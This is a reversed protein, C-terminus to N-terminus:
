FVIEEGDVPISLRDDSIGAERAARRLESRTITCHDFAEMHIAVVQSSPARRCVTVTQDADMIILEGRNWVAGGSHTLIVDPRWKTITEAVGEYWVTDGAWYLTPEKPARLVYGCTTGMDGLVADSTGHRAPVCHFEIGNCALHDAVPQVRTFNDKKLKEADQGRCLIPMQPPIVEAAAPDFHDKHLHSVL